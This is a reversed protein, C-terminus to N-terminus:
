HSVEDRQLSLQDMSFSSASKRASNAIMCAHFLWCSSRDIVRNTPDGSLQVVGKSDLSCLLFLTQVADNDIFQSPRENPFGYLRIERIENPM